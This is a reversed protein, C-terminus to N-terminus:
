AAPTKPRGPKLREFGAAAIAASWSGFVEVVSTAAPYDGAEYFRESLSRKGLARAQAPNFDVASPQRGHREAFRQIAAVVAERTWKTAAIPACVRCHRSAKAAPGGSGDTPAGCRECSGAYRRRRELHKALNPDNLLASVTSKAIGMRLAIQRLLLGQGRLRWAEVVRDARSM